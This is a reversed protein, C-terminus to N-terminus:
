GTSRCVATFGRVTSGSVHSHLNHVLVQFCDWPQANYMVLFTLCPSCYFPWLLPCMFPYLKCCCNIHAKIKSRLLLPFYLDGYWGQLMYMSSAIQIMLQESDMDQSFGAGACVYLHSPGCPDDVHLIGEWIPFFFKCINGYILKSTYVLLHITIWGPLRDDPRSETFSDDVYTLVKCCYPGSESANPRIGTVVSSM